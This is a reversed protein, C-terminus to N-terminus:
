FEDYDGDGPEPSYETNSTRVIDDISFSIVEMEPKVYM